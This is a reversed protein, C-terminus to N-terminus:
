VAVPRRDGLDVELALENATAVDEEAHVLRTLELLEEDLLADDGCLDRRRRRLRGLLPSTLADPDLLLM